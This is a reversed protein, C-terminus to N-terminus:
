QFMEFIAAVLLVAAKLAKKLLILQMGYTWHMSNKQSVCEGPPAFAITGHLDSVKRPSVPRNPLRDIPVTFVTSDLHTNNYLRPLAPAVAPRMGSHRWSLNGTLHMLQQETLGKRTASPGDSFVDHGRVENHKQSSVRCPSRNQAIISPVCRTDLLHFRLLLM